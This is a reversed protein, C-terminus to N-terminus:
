PGEFAGCHCKYEISLSRCKGCRAMEEACKHCTVKICNNTEKNCSVCKVM